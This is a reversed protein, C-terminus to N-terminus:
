KLAVQTRCSNSIKPKKAGRGPPVSIGLIQIEMHFKGSWGSQGAEHVEFEKKFFLQVHRDIEVGATGAGVPEHAADLGVQKM